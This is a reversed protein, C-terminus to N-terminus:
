DEAEQQRENGFIKKEFNYQFIKFIKKKLNKEQNRFVLFNISYSKYKIKWLFIYNHSVNSLSNLVFQYELRFFDNNHSVDKKEVKSLM